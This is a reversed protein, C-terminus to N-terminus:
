YREDYYKPYDKKKYFPGEESKVLELTNKDFYNLCIQYGITNNWIPHSQPYVVEAIIYEKTLRYFQVGICTYIPSEYKCGRAKLHLLGGYNKYIDPLIAILETKSTKYYRYIVRQNAMNTIARGYYVYKDNEFLISYSGYKKDDGLAMANFFHDYGKAIATDPITGSQLDDIIIYRVTDSKSGAYINYSFFLLFVLIVCKIVKM